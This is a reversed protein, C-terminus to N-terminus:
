LLSVNSPDSQCLQKRRVIWRPRALPRHPPVITLHREIRLWSSFMSKEPRHRDKMTHISHREITTITM